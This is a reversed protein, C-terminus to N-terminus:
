SRGLNIASEDLVETSLGDVATLGPHLPIRFKSSCTEDIDDALISYYVQDSRMIPARSSLRQDAANTGSENNWLAM